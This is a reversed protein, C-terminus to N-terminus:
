RGTCLCCLATWFETSSSAALATQGPRAQPAQGHAHCQCLSPHTNPTQAKEPTILGGWFQVPDCCVICTEGALASAALPRELVDRHQEISGSKLLKGLDQELHKVSFIVSPRASAMANCNAVVDRLRAADGPPGSAEQMNGLPTLLGCHVAAQPIPVSTLDLMATQRRLSGACMSHVHSLQPPHLTNPFMCKIVLMANCDTMVDRLCVAACLLGRSERMFMVVPSGHCLFAKNSQCPNHCRLLAHCNAM